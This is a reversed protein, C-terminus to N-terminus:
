THRRFQSLTAATVQPQKTHPKRAGTISLDTVLVRWVASGGLRAFKPDPVSLVNGPKIVRINSCGNSIASTEVIASAMVM